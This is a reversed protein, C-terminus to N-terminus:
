PEGGEVAFTFRREDFVGPGDRFTREIFVAEGSRHLILVTASRTGYVPSKIFTASLIREWEMGIGTDPLLSDDYRATDGLMGFLADPDPGASDRLIEGLIKKGRVVKPWP